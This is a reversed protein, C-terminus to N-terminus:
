ISEGYMQKTARRRRSLARREYRELKELLPLARLFSALDSRMGSVSNENAVSLGCGAIAENIIKARVDRIRLLDLEAEAIIYQERRCPGSQALVLKRALNEVQSRRAADDVLRAALGYKYANGSATTKGSATKPGTSRAANAKNAAIKRGPSM